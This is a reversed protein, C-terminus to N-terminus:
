FVRQPEKRNSSRLHSIPQKTRHMESPRITDAITKRAIAAMADYCDKVESEVDSVSTTPGSQEKAAALIRPHFM